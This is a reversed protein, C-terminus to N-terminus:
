VVHCKRAAWPEKGTQAHELSSGVLELDAQIGPMGDDRGVQGRDEHVDQAAEVPPVGSGGQECKCPVLVGLAEAIQEGAEGFTAQDLFGLGGVAWRLALPFRFQPRGSETPSATVRGRPSCLARHHHVTAPSQGRAERRQQGRTADAVDVGLGM